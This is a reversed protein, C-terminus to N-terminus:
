TLFLIFYEGTKGPCFPCPPSLHVPGYKGNRATNLIVKFQFREGSTMGSVQTRRSFISEATAWPVSAKKTMVFSHITKCECDTLDSLPWFSMLISLKLSLIAKVLPALTDGEDRQLFTAVPIRRFPWNKPVVFAHKKTIAIPLM